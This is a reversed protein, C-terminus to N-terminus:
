SYVIKNRIIRCQRFFIRKSRKKDLNKRYPENESQDFDFRSFRFNRTKQNSFIKRLSVSKAFLFFMCLNM